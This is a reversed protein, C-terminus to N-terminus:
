DGHAPPEAPPPVIRLLVQTTRGNLTFSARVDRAGSGAGSPDWGGAQGGDALTLELKAGGLELSLGGPGARLRGTIDAWPGGEKVFAEGDLEPPLVPEEARAAGALVLAAALAAILTRYANM